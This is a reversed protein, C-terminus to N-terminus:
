STVAALFTSKGANPIGVLAVDAVMKLTLRLLHRAGGDPGRRSAGKSKEKLKATGEGGNGGKAVLLRPNDVTLTGVEIWDTERNETEVDGAQKLERCVVTGPPVKVICDDGRRGNDYMRGGPQGTEARFSVTKQKGGGVKGQANNDNVATRSGHFIALTNLSGTDDVELYISGGTGGSGGDPIGNQSKKAKKYTSAGQGGSGARVYITAEDYFSYENENGTNENVSSIVESVKLSTIKPIQRPVRM